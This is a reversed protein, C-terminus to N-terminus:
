RQFELYHENIQKVTDIGATELIKIRQEALYNLERTMEMLKDTIQEFGKVKAAIMLEEMRANTEILEKMAEKQLIINEGKLKEIAVAKQAEIEAVRVKDPERVVTESYSSSSSSSGGM